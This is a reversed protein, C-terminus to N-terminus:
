QSVFPCLQKSRVISDSPGFNRILFLFRFVKSQFNALRSSQMAFWVTLTNKLVFLCEEKALSNRIFKEFKLRIPHFDMIDTPKSLIWFKDFEVFLYCYFRHFTDISPARQSINFIHTKLSGDRLLQQAMSTINIGLIAFAYGQTPHLSHQLVYRAQTNYERAFFLLNDLGLIGMGRFDTKPDTGQFGIEQWQKSIRHTLPVDPCLLNWLKMLKLEHEENGADYLTGALHAIEKVLQKYGWIHEICRGFAKVFHSHARPNIRKCDLVLIMSHQLAETMNQRLRREESFNDLYKRMTKIPEQKSHDLSYEILLSRRAGPLTSYCIRQLECLKTIHRLIIKLLSRFSWYFWLYLSRM